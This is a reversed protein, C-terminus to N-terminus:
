PGTPPPEDTLDTVLLSVVVPDPSTAAAAEAAAARADRVVDLTRRGADLVLQMRVLRRSPAPAGGPEPDGGPGGLVRPRSAGPLADSLGLVGPVALVAEAVPDASRDRTPRVAAPAAGPVPEAPETEDLLAVVHVDVASVTLGVRETAARVLAARVAAAHEPFPRTMGVACEAAIRLPGSPLGSPPPPVVPAAATTPDALALRLGAVRVDGVAEAVARRLVRAAAREALWAGDEPDGLAVLRGLGLQERVAAVLREDATM